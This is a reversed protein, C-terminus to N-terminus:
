YAAARVEFSSIVDNFQIDRLDATDNAFTECRGRFRSNQCAYVEFGPAIQISSIRDNGVSNRIDDISVEGLGVSLAAGRFNVNQFVTVPSSSSVRVEFSSIVDNFQIDRLDATDSTFIECRGRFRSNQCAIVEFGPAIQISSIRDNGVSNRLDAISVEGLGVNLSDGRFNVDRFVTVPDVDAVFDDDVCDPIGDSDADPSISAANLPDSGCAAENVDSQGDNDDDVDANNGVGDRDTDLSEAPDLPFADNVDLANDNDDNTDANNGVGDGDTDVSESDDLPFRDDADVVGDNDDDNDCVNGQGDEDTDLQNPNAITPCNDFEDAVGDGDLDVIFDDDVCDPIGDNDADPSTSADDLPDSGCAAENVDSQGDNDDDPDGNNGIGDGDTDASEAPELPFADDVDLVTDNDDDTDANNGTGDGDTDVSESGDFPFRDDADNVGDNDDDIDCLDGQGDQDNDAQDENATGPCNDEADPIGDRDSDGTFLDNDVCDPINDGDVDASLSTSDLPNSGCAVEETDLQLDNDDDQDANNGIGDNDTDESEAPELPFADDVDLVRDNDDDNDCANGERDGDTNTQNPNALDPCNDMADFLLDGDADSCADGIGDGNRDAQGVNANVPCNDSADPVGDNDGDTIDPQFEYSGVDCDGVVPEGRQDVSGPPCFRPGAPSEVGTGNDIAPSTASLAITDTSGLDRAPIGTTFLSAGDTVIDVGSCSFDDSINSQDFGFPVVFNPSENVDGCNNDGDNDILINGVLDPNTLRTEVFLTNARTGGSNDVFTNRIIESGDDRTFPQNFLAGGGTGARNNFFTSLRLSLENRNWIAGGVDAAENGIFTSSSIVTTGQHNIPAIAGGRSASNGEFLANSIEISSAFDSGFAGGSANGDDGNLDVSNNIFRSNNSSVSGFRLFVAGGTGAGVVRNNEFTSGNLELDVGDAMIAAGGSTSPLGDSSEYLGNRLTVNNFSVLARSGTAGLPENIRILRFADEESAREITGNTITLSNGNPDTDVVLESSLVITNGGLDIVDDESNGVTTSVAAELEAENAVNFTAASAIGVSGFLILLGISMRRKLRIASSRTMASFLSYM